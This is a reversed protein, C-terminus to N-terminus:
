RFRVEKALKLVEEHYDGPLMCNFIQLEMKDEPEDEYGPICVEAAHTLGGCDILLVNLCTTVHLLRADDHVM